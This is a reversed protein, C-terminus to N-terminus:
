KDVGFTKDQCVQCMGSIQYEKLSINNRFRGIAEGCVVCCEDQIFQERERGFLDTSLQNLARNMAASKESPKM